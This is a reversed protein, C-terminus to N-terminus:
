LEPSDPQRAPENRAHKQVCWEQQLPITKGATFLSNGVPPSGCDGVLVLPRTPATSASPNFGRTKAQIEGNGRPIGGRLTLLDCSLEFSPQLFSEGTKGVIQTSLSRSVQRGRGRADAADQLTFRPPFPTRTLEKVVGPRTAAVKLFTAFGARPVAGTLFRGASRSPSGRAKGCSIRSTICFAGFPSEGCASTM